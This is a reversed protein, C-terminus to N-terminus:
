KLGKLLYDLIPDTAVPKVLSKTKFKPPLILKREILERILNLYNYSTKGVLLYNLDTGSQYYSLIDRFGKLYLHDKTFGGGRYIRATMFFAQHEDMIKQDMLFQFTRTFSYGKLLKEITLVRLALIQLRRISLNGSLYESLIALGEQTHTNLPTGLRFVQLPQLRSNITTLMHVGIEHESLAYLSKQSFMADKRIRITKRSNLILIKSIIKRSIEIKCTFGYDNVVETFYKLVDDPTLNFIETGDAAPSFHMIYEANSIDRSGPEGFYRLSNYLFKDKGISSLIEVKDAYSDIVDQYMLRISIDNINEVPLAYLKRKFEFPNISLQKYIFKPDKRYKSKFFEKKEQEINEPNVFNLIEFNRVLQFLEKDLRRLPSKLESSLLFNKKRVTLNTNERAFLAVTNLIARKLKRTIEEIVVPYIEGNAENCYIKKVELAMVLSNRFRNTIFELLYGKGQFVANELALAEINPLSIRSLEKLFFDTYSGFRKKDILETGLNFVPIHNEKRRRYNFSHVDFIIASSFRSELKQILAEVVKYFNAHKELSIKKEEEPLDNKWVKKGWAEEYISDEPRRNLDYEYRSDRGCVVIPLYSIFNYTYPDEEQWREFEDLQCLGKLDPRLEHGDHIAFCAFPVYDDIRIYFSGDSSEAEFYKEQNIKEIISSVSLNLKM